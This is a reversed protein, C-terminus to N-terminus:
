GVQESSGWTLAENYAVFSHIKKAFDINFPENINELVFQWARKLNVIINVDHMDLGGVSVGDIITKTDPFTVNCGELKASNYINEVITKKALFMNQERSLQFKDM